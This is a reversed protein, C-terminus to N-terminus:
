APLPPRLPRSDWSPLKQYDDTDCTTSAPERASSSFYYGNFSIKSSSVSFLRGQLVSKETLYRSPLVQFPYPDFGQIPRGNPAQIFSLLHILYPFIDCNLENGPSMAYIILYNPFNMSLIPFLKDTLLSKLSVSLDKAEPIPNSGTM